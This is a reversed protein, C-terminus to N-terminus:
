CRKDLRYGNPGAFGEYQCGGYTGLFGHENKGSKWTEGRGGNFKAARHEPPGGPRMGRQGGQAFASAASGLAFVTVITLCSVFRVM